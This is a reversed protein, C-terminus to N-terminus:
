CLGFASMLKRRAVGGGGPAEVALALIHRSGIAARRMFHKPQRELRACGHRKAFPLQAGDQVYLNMKGNVIFSHNNMRRAACHTSRPTITGLISRVSSDRMRMSRAAKFCKTSCPMASVDIRSMASVAPMDSQAIYLWKSLLSSSAQSRKM